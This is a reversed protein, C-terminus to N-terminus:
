LSAGVPSDELTKEEQVRYDRAPQGERPCSTNSQDPEWAALGFLASVASVCYTVRPELQSREGSSTLTSYSYDGPGGRCM